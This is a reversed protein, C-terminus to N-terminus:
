SESAGIVWDLARQQGAGIEVVRETRPLREAWVVARYRGPPTQGSRSM